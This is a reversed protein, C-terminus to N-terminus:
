TGQRASVCCTVARCRVHTGGSYGEGGPYVKGLSNEVLESTPKLCSESEPQGKFEGTQRGGVGAGEKAEKKEGASTKAAQAWSNRDILFRGQFRSELWFAGAM